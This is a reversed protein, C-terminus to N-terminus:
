HNPTRSCYTAYGSSRTEDFAQRNVFALILVDRTRADQTVVPVLKQGDPGFDLLLQDTHEKAMSDFAAGPSRSSASTMQRLWGPALAVKYALIRRRPWSTVRSRLRLARSSFRAHEGVLQRADPQRMEGGRQLLHRAQGARQAPRPQEHLAVVLGAERGPAVLRALELEADALREAPAGVGEDREARHLRVVGALGGGCRRQAAQAADEDQPPLCGGHHRAVQEEVM